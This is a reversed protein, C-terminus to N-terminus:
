CNLYYVTLFASKGGPAYTTPTGTLIQSNNFDIKTPNIQKIIGNNAHPYFESMPVRDVVAKGELDQLSLFQGFLSIESVTAGGSPTVPTYTASQPVVAVIKKGELVPYNGLQYTNRAGDLPIEINYSGDYKLNNM